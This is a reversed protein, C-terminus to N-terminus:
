DGVGSGGAPQDAAATILGTPPIRPPDLVDWPTGDVDHRLWLYILAAATWFFSYAWGQAVLSVVGLWFSHAATAIQSESEGAERFITAIRTAPGSLGLGWETLRIVGAALFNVLVIGIMGEFWAFAALAALSGLRQNVYGFSRSLADLSDEAGAAVAAHLLPWAAALAAALLTMILGLGLPIAFFVGGLTSGVAPLRYLLGFGALAASCFALGGFPIFATFILPMANRRAFGLAEGLGTQQLCGVRVLAIRCIAGGCLGWVTFLWFLSLAARLM